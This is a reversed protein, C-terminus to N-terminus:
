VVLGGGARRCDPGGPMGVHERVMVQFMELACVSDEKPDICGRVIGGGSREPVQLRASARASICHDSWGKSPAHAM